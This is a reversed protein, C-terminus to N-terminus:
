RSAARLARKPAAAHRAVLEEPATPARTRAEQDGLLRRHNHSALMIGLM